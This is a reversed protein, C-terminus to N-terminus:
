APCAARHKDIVARVAPVSCGCAASIAPMTHGHSRMELIRDTHPNVDRGGKRCYPVAEGAGRARSLVEFVSRLKWGVLGAIEHHDMGGKALTVIDRCVGVGGGAGTVDMCEGDGADPCDVEIAAALAMRAQRAASLHVRVDAATIGMRRAVDFDSLGTLHILDEITRTLRPLGTIAAQARDLAIGM